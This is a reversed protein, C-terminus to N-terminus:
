PNTPRVRSNWRRVSLNHAHSCGSRALTQAEGLRPSRAAGSRGILLRSMGLRLRGAKSVRLRVKIDDNYRKCLETNHSAEHIPIFKSSAANTGRESYVERPQLSENLTPIEQTRNTDASGRWFM